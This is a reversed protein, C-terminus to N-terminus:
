SRRFSTLGLAFCVIAFLLGLILQEPVGQILVAESPQNPNVFIPQISGAPFDDLQQGLARESNFPIDTRYLHSGTFSEGQHQYRFSIVPQYLAQEGIQTTQAMTAQYILGSTQPWGFTDYGRWVSSGLTVSLIVGATFLIYGIGRQYYSKQRTSQAPM